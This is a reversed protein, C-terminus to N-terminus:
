SLCIRQVGWRSGIVLVLSLIAKTSWGPSHVAEGIKGLRTIHQDDPFTKLAKMHFHWCFVADQIWEDQSRIALTSRVYYFIEVEFMHLATEMIRVAAFSTCSCVLRSEVPKISRSEGRRMYTHGNRAEGCKLGPNCKAYHWRQALWHIKQRLWPISAQPSCLWRLLDEGSGELLKRRM